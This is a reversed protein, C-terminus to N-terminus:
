GNRAIGTISYFIRYSLAMGAIANTVIYNKMFAM